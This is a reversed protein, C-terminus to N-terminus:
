RSARGMERGVVSRASSALRCPKLFHRMVDRAAVAEGSELRLGRRPRVSEPRPRPAERAGSRRIPNPTDQRWPM